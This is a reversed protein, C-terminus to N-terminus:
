RVARAPALGFLVGLAFLLVIFLVMTRNSGQDPQDNTFIRWGMGLAVFYFAGQGLMVGLTIATICILVRHLRNLADTARAGDFFWVPILNLLNIWAGAHAVASWAPRGTGLYLAFFGAACLMGALPGALSVMAREVLTAIRYSGDAEVAVMEWRVYAGFGPLFIPLDARMGLRKVAVYHGFEHVMISLAFGLGFWFGYLAWYLGFFGVFSLLFKFKFLFLLLTKAKVLLILIPAFFRKWFSPKLGQSPEQQRNGCTACFTADEPLATGCSTCPKM